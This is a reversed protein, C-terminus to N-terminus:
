VCDGCVGSGCVGLEFEFNIVDLEPSRICRVQVVDSYGKSIVCDGAVRTKAGDGFALDIPDDTRKHIPFEFEEKASKVLSEPRISKVCWGCSFCHNIIQLHQLIQSEVHHPLM